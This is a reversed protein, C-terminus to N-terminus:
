AAAPPVKVHALTDNEVVVEAIGGLLNKTDPAYHVYFSDGHCLSGALADGLTNWLLAASRESTEKPLLPVAYVSRGLRVGKNKTVFSEIADYVESRDISADETDITILDFHVLLYRGDAWFFTPLENGQRKQLKHGLMRAFRVLQNIREVVDKKWAKTAM